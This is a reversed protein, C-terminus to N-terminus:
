QAMVAGRQAANGAIGPAAGQMLEEHIFDGFKVAKGLVRANMYGQMLRYLRHGGVLASVAGVTPVGHLNAAAEGAIVPVMLSAESKWNGKAGAKMANFARLAAPDDKAFEKFNQELARREPTNGSALVSQMKSYDMGQTANMVKAYRQDLNELNSIVAAGQKPGFVYNAAAAQQARVGQFLNDMADASPKDGNQLFAMRKQILESGANQLQQWKEGWDKAPAKMLMEANQADPAFKAEVKGTPNEATRLQAVPGNPLPQNPKPVQNGAADTVQSRLDNYGASVASKEAAAPRMVAAEGASTGAKAQEYAHVMDDPNQGHDKIAKTAEDASVKAAEYKPNPGADGPLDPKETAMIQRAQSLQGAHASLEQQASQTYRSLAKYATAGASSVFRGLAEGGLGYALGTTAADVTNVSGGNQAADAGAAVAGSGLVRTAAAVVPRAESYVGLVGGLATQKAIEVPSQKNGQMYDKFVQGAGGGVAGGAVAGPPGGMMGGAISGGTSASAPAHEVAATGTDRWDQGTQAFQGAQEEPTPGPAATSTGRRAAAERQMLTQPQTTQTGASGPQESPAGGSKAKTRTANCCQQSLRAGVFACRITVRSRRALQRVRM